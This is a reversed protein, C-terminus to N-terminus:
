SNYVAKVAQFSAICVSYCIPFAIRCAKSAIDWFFLDYLFGGFCIFGGIPFSLIFFIGYWTHIMRDLKFYVIIAPLFLTFGLGGTLITLVIFCFSSIYPFIDLKELYDLVLIIFIGSFYFCLGITYFYNFVIIYDDPTQKTTELVQMYFYGGGGIQGGKIYAFLTVLFFTGGLCQIVATLFLFCSWGYKCLLTLTGLGPIIMNSLLRFFSDWGFASPLHITDSGCGIIIDLPKVNKKFSDIITKKSVGSLLFSIFTGTIGIFIFTIKIPLITVM